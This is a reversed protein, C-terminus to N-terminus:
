STIKADPAQLPLAEPLRVALAMAITILTVTVLNLVVSYLHWTAFASKAAQAVAHDAAYRELRLRGVQAALPWGVAVSILALALVIARIRHWSSFPTTNWWALATSLALVGCVFQLPFYLRFLPEVAIGALQTGMDKDFTGPLWDPRGAPSAGLSQLTEFLSTTALIFFIASGFWLALALVHIIKAALLMAPSERVRNENGALLRAINARHRALVLLAALGCFATLIREGPALPEACTLLRVVCLALAATLSALSVYCSVVLVALWMVLAAAAPIPVLVAVVGAGTAVGKGGKFRLFPSFIHGLLAALGAVVALDDRSGSEPSLRHFVSPFLGIALVALAGKLFDLVFVLIGYRWGLVRGVNTAGINGSGQQFIDVGKARAVLYGFPISGIVYALLAGSVLEGAWSM